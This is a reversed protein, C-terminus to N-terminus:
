YYYIYFNHTYLSYAPWPEALSTTDMIAFDRRTQEAEKEVHALTKTCLNRLFPNMYTLCATCCANSTYITSVQTSFSIM